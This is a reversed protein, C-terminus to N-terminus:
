TWREFDPGSMLFEKFDPRAQQSRRYEDAAVVVVLGAGSRMVIQPGEDLTRQM